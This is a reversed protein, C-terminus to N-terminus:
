PWAAGRCNLFISYLCHSGGIFLRNRAPGGFTLNSVAWMNGLEDIRLGDVYDPDPKYFVEGGRLEDGSVVNFM